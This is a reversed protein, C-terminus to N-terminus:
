VHSCAKKINAKFSIASESAMRQIQALNDVTKLDGKANSSCFPTAVSLPKTQGLVDASPVRLVDLAITEQKQANMKNKKTKVSM